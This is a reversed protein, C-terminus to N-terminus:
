DLPVVQNMLLPVIRGLYWGETHTYEGKPVEPTGESVTFGSQIFAEHAKERTSFVGLIPEPDYSYVEAVYVEM